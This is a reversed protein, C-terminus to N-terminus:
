SKWSITPRESASSTLTQGLLGLSTALPQLWYDM